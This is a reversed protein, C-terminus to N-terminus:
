HLLIEAIYSVASASLQLNLPHFHLQLNENMNGCLDASSYVFEQSLQITLIVKFPSM